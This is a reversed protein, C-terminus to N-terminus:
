LTKLRFKAQKNQKGLHSELHSKRITFWGVSEFLRGRTLLFFAEEVIPNGDAVPSYNSSIDNDFLTPHCGFTHTGIFYRELVSGGQYITPSLHLVITAQYAGHSSPKYSISFDRNFKVFPALCRPM